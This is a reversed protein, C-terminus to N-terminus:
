QSPDKFESKKNEEVIGCESKNRQCNLWGQVAMQLPTAQHYFHVTGPESPFWGLGEMEADTLSPLGPCARGTLLTFVTHITRRQTLEVYRHFRGQLHMQHKDSTTFSKECLLCHHQEKTQPHELSLHNVFDGESRFALHCRQCHYPHQRIHSSREAFNKLEIGCAQCDIKGGDQGMRNCDGGSKCAELEDNQLSVQQDILSCRANPTAMEGRHHIPFHPEKNSFVTIDPCKQKSKSASKTYDCDWFCQKKVTSKSDTWESHRKKSNKEAKQREEFKKRLIKDRSSSYHVSPREENSSTHSSEHYNHKSECMSTFHKQNYEGPTSVSANNVKTDSFVEVSQRRQPLEINPLIEQCDSEIRRCDKGREETFNKDHKLMGKYKKGSKLPVTDCVLASQLEIQEDPFNNAEIINHLSECSSISLSNTDSHKSNKPESLDGKEKRRIIKKQSAISTDIAGWEHENGNNKKGSAHMNDKCKIKHAKEMIGTPIKLNSQSRADVVHPSFKRKQMRKALEEVNSDRKLMVVPQWYKETAASLCLFSKYRTSGDPSRKIIVRPLEKICEDSNKKISKDNPKRVEKTHKVHQVEVSYSATKRSSISDAKVMNFTKDINDHSKSISGSYSDETNGQKGRIEIFSQEDRHRYMDSSNKSGLTDLKCIERKYLNSCSAREEVNCVYRSFPDKKDVKTKGGHGPHDRNRKLILRQVLVIPNSLIDSKSNNDVSEIVYNNNKERKYGCPNSNNGHTVHWTNQKLSSSNLPSRHMSTEAKDFQLTASVKKSNKELCESMFDDKQKRVESSISIEKLKKSMKSYLKDKSKPWKWRSQTKCYYPWSKTVTKKIRNKMKYGSCKDKGSLDFIKDWSLRCKLDILENNAQTYNEEASSRKSTGSSEEMNLNQCQLGNKMTLNNLTTPSCALSQNKGSNRECTTNGLPVEPEVDSNQLESIVEEELYPWDSVSDAQLVGTNYYDVEEGFFSFEGHMDSTTINQNERDEKLLVTTMAKLRNSDALENIHTTSSVTSNQYEDTCETSFHRFEVTDEQTSCPVIDMLLNQPSQRSSEDESVIVCNSNMCVDDSIIATTIVDSESCVDVSSIHTGINGESHLVNEHSEPYVVVCPVDIDNEEDLIGDHTGSVITVDDAEVYSEVCPLEDEFLFLSEAKDNFNCDVVETNAEEFTSTSSIIVESEDAPELNSNQTKSGVQNTKQASLGLVQQESGSCMENLALWSNQTVASDRDNMADVDHHILVPCKETTTNKSYLLESEVVSCITDELFSSYSSTETVLCNKGKESQSIGNCTDENNLISNEEEVEYPIFAAPALCDTDTEGFFSKLPLLKQHHSSLETIVQRSPTLSGEQNVSKDNHCHDEQKASDDKLKKIITSNSGTNTKHHRSSKFLHKSLIKQYNGGFVNNKISFLISLTDDNGNLSHKSDIKKDNVCSNGESNCMQDQILLIKSRTTSAMCTTAVTDINKSLKNDIVDRRSFRTTEFTSVDKEDRTCAISEKFVPAHHFKISAVDKHSHSYDNYGLHHLWLNVCSESIKFLISTSELDQSVGSQGQICEDQFADSNIFLQPLNSVEPLNKYGPKEGNESIAPRLCLRRCGVRGKGSQEVLTKLAEVIGKYYGQNDVQPYQLFLSLGIEDSDGFITTVYRNKYQFMEAQSSRAAHSAFSFKANM